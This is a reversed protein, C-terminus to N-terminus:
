PSQSGPFDGTLPRDFLVGEVSTEYLNKDPFLPAQFDATVRKAFILVLSDDHLSSPQQAKPAGAADGRPGGRSLQFHTAVNTLRAAIRQRVLAQPEAPCV